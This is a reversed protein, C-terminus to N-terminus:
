SGEDSKEQVDELLNKLQESKLEKIKGFLDKLFQAREEDTKLSAFKPYFEKSLKKALYKIVKENHENKIKSMKKSFDKNGWYNWSTEAENTETEKEFKIKGNSLRKFPILKTKNKNDERFLCAIIAEKRNVDQSASEFIQKPKMMSMWSEHMIVYEKINQIQIIKFLADIMKVKEETNNFVLLGCVNKGDNAKYMFMSTIREGNKIINKGLDVVVNFLDDLSKNISKDM